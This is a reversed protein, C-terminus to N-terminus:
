RLLFQPPTHESTNKESHRDGNGWSVPVCEAVGDRQKNPWGVSLVHPRKLIKTAEPETTLGDAM